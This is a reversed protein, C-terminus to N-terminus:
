PTARADYPPVVGSRAVDAFWYASAKPTRQQTAYDVHVMGFRQAYGYGWEYNDLLSWQFYGRVDVGADMAVRIARLHADLYALREPDHVTGDPLPVDHFAAGNETIYIPPVKYDSHLRVLLRTLGEPQIEWGIDTRPLGRSPFTVHESGPFPSGAPRTPHTVGDDEPKELPRGSVCDGRYYNVGLLDLPTAILDLDGDAVVEQWPRGLWPMSATDAVVDAPYSGRLLPDLFVRNQLGDIRRAADRDADDRARFPDAVTLNLTIGLDLSTDRRRLEDVVLGHGLLLHHAAVLGAVGEQRGPAHRGSTYGLFASCWPENMTTWTPVRDGLADYLSLAYDAFRYATDRNTWGGADELTQPLDWHYLTLWPRIDHGLLEDVLRQYFDVGAPNLPGADPRVRAWSTSFRYSDLHLRKMLAVDQPMRHYHDCAVDGNDGALVAGPLTAFTDWICPRRGDLDAAGEIQYAATAAGWRFDAPFEVATGTDIRSPHQGIQGPHSTPTHITTM